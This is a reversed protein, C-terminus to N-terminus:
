FAGGASPTTGLPLRLPPDFRDTFDRPRDARDVYDKSKATVDDLQKLKGGDSLAAVSTGEKRIVL